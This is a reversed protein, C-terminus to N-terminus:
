SHLVLIIVVARKKEIARSIMPYRSHILNVLSPDELFLSMTLAKINM